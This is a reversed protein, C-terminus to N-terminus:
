GPHSGHETSFSINRLRQSCRSDLTGSLYRCSADPLSPRIIACTDVSRSDSRNRAHNGNGTEQWHVRVKCSCVRGVLFLVGSPLRRQLCSLDLKGPVSFVSSQHVPRFLQCADAHFSDNPRFTALILWVMPVLALVSGLLLVIVAFIRLLKM